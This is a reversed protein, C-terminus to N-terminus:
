GRYYRRRARYWLWFTLAAFGVLVSHGFESTEYSAYAIAAFFSLAAASPSTVFYAAFAAYSGNLLFLWCGSSSTPIWATPEAALAAGTPFVFFLASLLWPLRLLRLWARTYGIPQTRLAQSALPHCRLSLMFVLLGGLMATVASPAAQHRSLSAGISLLAASCFLIVMVIARTSLRIRGTELELAWSSLWRPTSSDLYRMLPPRPQEGETPRKSPAHDAFIETATWQQCLLGSVFASAFLIVTAASAGIANRSEVLLCCASAAGGAIVALPAGITLAAVSAMRRRSGISLPLSRLFPSVASSWAVAGIAFGVAMGLVTAAALIGIILFQQHQRLLNAWRHLAVVIDIIGYALLGGGGLFIWCLDRIRLSVLSNRGQHWLLILVIRDHKMKLGGCGKASLHSFIEGCIPGRKDFTAFARHRLSRHNMREVPTRRYLFAATRPTTMFYRAFVASGADLMM